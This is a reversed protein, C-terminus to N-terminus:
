RGAVPSERWLWTSPTSFNILFLTLPRKEWVAAHEHEYLASIQSKETIKKYEKQM